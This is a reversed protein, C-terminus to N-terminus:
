NVKKFGGLEAIIDLIAQSVNRSNLMEAVLTDTARVLLDLKNENGMNRDAIKELTEVVKTLGSNSDRKGINSISRILENIYPTIKEFKDLMDKQSGSIKNLESKLQSSVSGVIAEKLDSVSTTINTLNDSLESFIKSSGNKYSENGERFEESLSSVQHLLANVNYYLDKNNEAAKSLNSDFGKDLKVLIKSVSNIEDSLGDLVETSRRGIDDSRVELSKIAKSMESIATASDALAKPISSFNQTTDNLLKIGSDINRVVAQQEEFMRDISSVYANLDKFDDSLNLISKNVSSIQDAFAKSAEGGLKSIANQSNQTAVSLSELFNVSVALNDALNSLSPKVVGEFESLMEEKLSTLHILKDHVASLVESNSRGYRDNEISETLQNINGLVSSINNNVDLISSVGKIVNDLGNKTQSGYNESISGLDNVLEVVQGLSSQIRNSVEVSEKAYQESKGSTEVLNSLKDLSDSSVDQLNSVINGIQMINTDTNILIGKIESNLDFNSKTDKSHKDLKEVVAGLDSSSKAEYKEINSMTNSIESLSALKSIINELLNNVAVAYESSTNNIVGLGEVVSGIGENVTNGLSVVGSNLASNQEMIVSLSNCISTILNKNEESVGSLSSLSAGVGKLLSGVFDIREVLGSSLSNINSLLQGNYSTDKLLAAFGDKFELFSSLIAGIQKEMDVYLSSFKAVDNFYQSSTVYLNNVTDNVLSIGSVIQQSMNTVIDESRDLKDVVSMGNDVAAKMMPLGSSVMEAISNVAGGVADLRKALALGDYYTIVFDSVLKLKNLIQDSGSLMDSSLSIIMSLREDVVKVINVGHQSIEGLNDIAAVQLNNSEAFMDGILLLKQDVSAASAKVTGLVEEALSNSASQADILDKSLENGYVSADCQQRAISLAEGALENSIDSKSSVGQLLLNGNVIEDLINNSVGNSDVKLSNSDASLTNAEDLLANSTELSSAVAATIGNGEAILSAVRDLILKDNVSVIESSIGGLIDGSRDLTKSIESSVNLSQESIDVGDQLLSVAKSVMEANADSADLIDELFPEFTKKIAEPLVVALRDVIDDAIGNLARQNAFIKDLFDEMIEHDKLVVRLMREQREHTKVIVSAMTSINNSVGELRETIGRYLVDFSDELSVLLDRVSIRSPDEDFIGTTSMLYSRVKYSFLLVRQWATHNGFNSLLAASLGFLSASFATSMGKLPGSLLAIFSSVDITGGASTALSSLASAVGDITHLLGLFTGFLGCLIFISSVFKSPSLVRLASDVITQAIEDADNKSVELKNKRDLKALAASFVPSDFLTGSISYSSQLIISKKNVSDTDGSSKRDVSPGVRSIIQALLRSSRSFYALSGLIWITCFIFLVIIIGNVEFSASLYEYITENFIVVFALALALTLIYPFPFFSVRFSM